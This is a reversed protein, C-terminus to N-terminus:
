MNRNNIEDRIQAAREFLEKETAIKLEEQLEKLSMNKISVNTFGSDNRSIINQINKDFNEDVDGQILSHFIQDIKDAIMPFEEKLKDLEEPTTNENILVESYIINNNIDGTQNSEWTKYNPPPSITNKNNLEQGIKLLLNATSELNDLFMFYLKSGIYMIAGLAMLYIGPLIPLSQSILAASLTLVGCIAMSIGAIGLLFFTLFEKSKKM